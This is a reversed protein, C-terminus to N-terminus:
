RISRPEGAASLIGIKKAHAIREAIVAQRRRTSLEGWADDKGVGYDANHRSWAQWAGIQRAVAMEWGFWRWERCRSSDPPYRDAFVHGMEHIIHGIKERGRVAYVVKKAWELGHTDSNEPESFGEHYELDFDSAEPSGYDPWDRNLMDSIEQRSVIALRGGLQECIRALARVHDTKTGRDCPETEIGLAAAIHIQATVSAGSRRAAEVALDAFDHKTFDPETAATSLLHELRVTM